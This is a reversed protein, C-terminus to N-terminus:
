GVRAFGALDLVASVIAQRDKPSAAPIPIHPIDWLELLLRVAGDIQMQGDRETDALPRAGDALV